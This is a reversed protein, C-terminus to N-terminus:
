VKSFTNLYYKLNKKSCIRCTGNKYYYPTYFLTKHEGYCIKEETIKERCLPCLNNKINSICDYHYEHNCKLKVKHENDKIQNICIICNFM